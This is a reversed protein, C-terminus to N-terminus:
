ERIASGMQKLEQKREYMRRDARKFVTMIDDDNEREYNAIGASIVVGGYRVNDEAERNFHRMLEYRNDFDGRELITVFEDGGIRFVPSHKFCTCIMRCADVIYKDGAEHGKTDNILKLGNLDFVALAFAVDEGSNIRNQLRDEAEAYSLKNKVGTLPDTYALKKTSGLEKKQERERRLALELENRYEEREDQIVFSYLLCDGVMYGVSYLPLLPYAIQIAILVTMAIGFLGVTVHRRRESGHVRASAALTYVSTLMFLVIQVALTVYRAPGAVYEGNENFSFLIPKIFNVAIFILEAGVFLYGIYKLLTSFVSKENLYAVVYQTWFFIALAMAIFYVVTDAYLLRVVGLADLFGWLVDTVYYALISYLFRRYIPGVAYFRDNKRGFIVDHNIILLIVAAIIGTASYSM